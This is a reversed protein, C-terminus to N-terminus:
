EAKAAAKVAKGLDLKAAKVAFTDSQTRKIRFKALTSDNLSGLAELNLSKTARLFAQADFRPDRQAEQEILLIAVEENKVELRPPNTKLSVEGYPTKLTKKPIFWDPHRRAVVELASEAEVLTEQLLGYEKKHEDVVELAAENVQAQLADLRNTAVSFVALLGVLNRFDPTPEAGQGALPEYPDIM